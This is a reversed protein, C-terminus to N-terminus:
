RIELLELDVVITSLPPISADDGHLGHAMYSPLIFKAKDGVCMLQIAEHLGSEIADGEVKFEYAGDKDSSYCETGDFLSIKYNVKVNDGSRASDGTGQKLFLYRLGTGTKEMTWNHRAIYQNIEDSEKEMEYKNVKVLQEKFQSPNAKQKPKVNETGCSFLFLFLLGVGAWGMPSPSHLVSILLGGWRPPNLLPKTM